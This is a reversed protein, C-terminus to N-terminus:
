RAISQAFLGLPPPPSSFTTNHIARNLCFHEGLLMKAYQAFNSLNQLCIKSKRIQERGPVPYRVIASTM